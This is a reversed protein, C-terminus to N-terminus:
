RRDVKINDKRTKRNGSRTEMMKPTSVRNDALNRTGVLFDFLSGEGRTRETLGYQTVYKVRWSGRLPDCECLPSLGITLKTRRDDCEREIM